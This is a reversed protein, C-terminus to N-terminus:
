NFMPLSFKPLRGVFEPDGYGNLYGASAKVQVLEINENDDKDVTISLVRVNSADGKPKPKWQADIKENIFEDMSLEFFDAFRKLLEYKPEAREEEYAGVLSRKIEMVDAFQQQTLGQKKRLYKINGSINGM